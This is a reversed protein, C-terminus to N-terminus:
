LGIQNLYERNRTASQLPTGMGPLVDQEVVIWGEYGSARLEDTIADFPVSGKGLECFIGSNVSKFYDWGEERARAAIRPDCDKFHVHQIRDAHRRVGDLADGGGFAYHGTDLCLGVLDPDTASLFRNIEWPTEIFGACHHHFVTRVGTRRLVERAVKHTGSIFDFWQRDTMALKRTIRGANEFRSTNKCNDDSLVIFPSASVASLLEAAQVAREVGDTHADSHALDVPVFAALMELNRTQLEVRLKAPEVPMFGWDGLETGAYGSRQMEDLVRQYGKSKGSLEFELAGWSCPANAVKIKSLTQSV